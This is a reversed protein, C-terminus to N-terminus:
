EVEWVCSQAVYPLLHKSLPTPRYEKPPHVDYLFRLVPGPVSLIWSLLPIQSYLSNAWSPVDSDVAVSIGCPGREGMAAWSKRPYSLVKAREDKGWAPTYTQNYEAYFSALEPTYGSSRLSRYSMSWWVAVSRKAYASYSEEVLERKGAFLPHHLFHAVFEAKSMLLHPYEVYKRHLRDAAEGVGKSYADSRTALLLQPVGGYARVAETTDFVSHDDYSM